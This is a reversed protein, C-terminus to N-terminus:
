AGRIYGAVTSVGYKPLIEILMPIHDPCVGGEVIKRERQGALEHFIEGLYRAAEGYLKKRRYKPIWV